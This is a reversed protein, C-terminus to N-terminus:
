GARRHRSRPGHRSTRPATSRRSRSARSRTRTSTRASARSPTARTTLPACRRSPVNRKPGAEAPRNTRARSTMSPRWRPCPRAEPVDAQADQDCRAAGTPLTRELVGALPRPIWALRLPARLPTLCKRHCV